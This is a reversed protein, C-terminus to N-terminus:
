YIQRNFYHPFFLTGLDEENSNIGSGLPDLSSLCSSMVMGSIFILFHFCLLGNSGKGFVFESKKHCFPSM